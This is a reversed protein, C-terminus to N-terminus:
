ETRMRVFNFLIRRKTYNPSILFVFDACLASTQGLVYDCCRGVRIVLRLFNVSKVRYLVHIKYLKQKDTKYQGKM